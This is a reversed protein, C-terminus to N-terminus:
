HRSREYIPGQAGKQFAPKYEGLLANTAQEVMAVDEESVHTMDMQMVAKRLAVFQNLIKGNECAFEIRKHVDIITGICTEVRLRYKQRIEMRFRVRRSL